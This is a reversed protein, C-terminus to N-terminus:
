IIFLYLLCTFSVQKAVRRPHRHKGLVFSGLPKRFGKPDSKRMSIIYAGAVPVYPIRHEKPSDPKEALVIYNSIIL